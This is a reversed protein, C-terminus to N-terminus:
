TKKELKTSLKAVIIGALFGSLHGEWSIYSLTPFVGFIMYGYSMILFLSLIMYAFHKKFLGFSILYGYLAFILGSAGIHNASRGIVWTLIGTLITLLIVKEIAGKSEVLAFIPAFTLLAISNSILHILSGHLLPSTIIGILGFTTRPIIGFQQLPLVQSLFFIVWLSAVFIGIIKFNKKLELIEV